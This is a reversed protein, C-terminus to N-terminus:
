YIAAHQRCMLLSLVSFALTGLHYKENIHLENKWGSFIQQNTQQFLSMVSTAPTVDLDMTLENQLETIRMALQQVSVSAKNHVNPGLSNARTQL